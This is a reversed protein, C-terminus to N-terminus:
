KIEKYLTAVGAPCDISCGAHLNSPRGCVATMGAVQPSTHDDGPSPPSDQQTVDCGTPRFVGTPVAHRRVRDPAVVRDISHSQSYSRERGCEATSSREAAMRAAARLRGTAGPESQKPGGGSGGGM